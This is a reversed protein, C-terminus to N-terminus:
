HGRAGEDEAGREILRSIRRAVEDAAQVKHTHTADVDAKVDVTAAALRPKEYGIAKGAADLRIAIEKSEDKYIAMLLAHADGTFCAPLVEALQEAVQQMAEAREETRKNKAGSPRGAGPRKGGKMNSIETRETSKTQNFIL